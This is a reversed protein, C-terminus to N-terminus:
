SAAMWANLGAIIANLADDGCARDTSVAFQASEEYWAARKEMLARLIAVPDGGNLLPRATSEACRAALTEPSATLWVACARRRLADRMEPTAVIGGGAAIVRAEADLLRDMVQAEQKRFADEGHQAFFDAIRCGQAQEFATDADSFPLALARALKRGLQSKGSGMMGILVVPRALTKELRPPQAM